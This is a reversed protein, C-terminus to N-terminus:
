RVTGAITADVLERFQSAFREPTSDWDAYRRRAAAGLREALEPDSLAAVLADALVAVDGRPVLLGEVGDDVLDLIGGAGTAVVGRGRAFAEIVVRGLGEPWSPLVLVTAGDLVEAVEAPELFPHYEVSGPLDRQLEEVVAVRSGSGIAVLRAGPLREAVLRWAAALGDVNKYAELVGIFCATPREPLPQVPRATFASLDSYTPFSASATRGRTEEVLGATFPSLARTADARKLALRAAADTLPALLRRAPSGYLRPFTRWDGHVEVIVKTRGRALRRGALAALGVFPDAAVVVDPRQEQIERGLRFPLRLHFLAGDLRQLRSPRNLRFRGASPASGDAAAGVVRYDLQEELADWKKELWEPLPLVLRGRGVFLVRPRRRGDAGSAADGAATV